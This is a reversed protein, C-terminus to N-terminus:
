LFVFIATQESALFSKGDDDKKFRKHSRLHISFCKASPVLVRCFGHLLFTLIELSKYVPKLGEIEVVLYTLTVNNLM